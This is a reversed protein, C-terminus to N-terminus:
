VSRVADGDNNKREEQAVEHYGKCCDMLGKPLGIMFYRTAESTRSMLVARQVGVGEDGWAWTSAWALEAGRVGCLSRAVARTVLACFLEIRCHQTKSEGKWGDEVGPVEPAAFRLRAVLRLSTAYVTIGARKLPPTCLAGAFCHTSTSHERDTKM